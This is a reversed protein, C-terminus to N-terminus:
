LNSEDSTDVHILQLIFSWRNNM